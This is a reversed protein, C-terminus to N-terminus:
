FEDWALVTFVIAHEIGGRYAPDALHALLVPEGTVRARGWLKLRRSKAYDILFLFSRENEALNGISIYQKNGAYEAFERWIYGRVTLSRTQVHAALPWAIAAGGLLTIFERRKLSRIAHL